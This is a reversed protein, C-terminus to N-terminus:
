NLYTVINFKWLQAPNGDLAASLDDEDWETSIFSIRVKSDPIACLGATHLVVDKDDDGTAHTIKGGHLIEVNM